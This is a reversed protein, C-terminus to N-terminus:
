PSEHIELLASNIRNRLLLNEASLKTYSQSKDMIQKPPYVSIDQLLEKSQLKRAKTVPTAVWLAQSNSATNKPQYLFELFQIAIETRQSNSMISLCDTWLVTGESVTTYQWVDTNQKENLAYQDGSYALAVYLSDAKDSELFSLSYEYTLINPSNKEMLWFAAELHQKKDTNIPYGLRLLAPALTDTYDDILGIHGKIAPEPELIFNWSDPKKEIKDSRYALGFTGWLYPIGHDSCEDRFPPDIAEYLASASSHRLNLLTDTGEALLHTGISDLVIVDIQDGKYNAILMDRQEENDYFVQRITHGSKAEWEEIIEQSLYSEWNLITITDAYSQRNILLVLAFAIQAFKM